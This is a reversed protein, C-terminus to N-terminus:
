KQRISEGESRGSPNERVEAQHIRRVSRGSPNERVEAQHIRERGRHSSRLESTSYRALKGGVAQLSLSFKQLTCQSFYNRSYIPQV